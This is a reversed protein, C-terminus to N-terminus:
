QLEKLMNELDEESAEYLAQNKKAELIEMIKQKKESNAKKEENAKAENLKVSVIHKIIEIAIQMNTDATTKTSLLSEEQSEKLQSNIQKYIYDLEKVDLDWLEEVGILGKYAFKMKNRTAYEFINIDSM